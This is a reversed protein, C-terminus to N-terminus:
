ASRVCGPFLVYEDTREPQRHEETMLLADLVARPPQGLFFWRVELAQHRLRASRNM